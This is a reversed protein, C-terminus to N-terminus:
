SPKGEAGPEPIHAAPNREDTYTVNLPVPGTLTVNSHESYKRPNLARLLFHRDAYGMMNRANKASSDELMEILNEAAKSFDAQFEKDEMRWEKVTQRSVGARKAAEGVVGCEQYTEIFKKKAARIMAVTAIRKM